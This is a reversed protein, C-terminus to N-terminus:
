IYEYQAGNSDAMNKKCLINHYIKQCPGNIGINNKNAVQHQKYYIICDCHSNLTLYLHACKCWIDM